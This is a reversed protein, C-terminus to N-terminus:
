LREYIIAGVGIERSRTEKRQKGAQERSGVVHSMSAEHEVYLM